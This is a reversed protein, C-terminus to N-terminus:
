HIMLYKKYTQHYISLKLVAMTTSTSYNQWSIGLLLKTTKCGACRTASVHWCANENNKYLKHKLSKYHKM